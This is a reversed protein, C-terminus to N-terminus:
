RYSMLLANPQNSPQHACCTPTSARMIYCLFIYGIMTAIYIYVFQRNPFGELNQETALMFILSYLQYCYYLTYVHVQTSIGGKKKSYFVFPFSLFPHSNYSFLPSFINTVALYPSALCPFHEGVWRVFYALSAAYESLIKPSRRQEPGGIRWEFFFSFSLLFPHSYFSFLLFSFCLQSPLAFCPLALCIDVWGVFYSTWAATCALSIRSSRKKKQCGM